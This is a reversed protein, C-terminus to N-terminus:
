FQILATYPFSRLTDFPEFLLKAYSGACVCVSRTYCGIFICILAYHRRQRFIDGAVIEIPKSNRKVNPRLQM